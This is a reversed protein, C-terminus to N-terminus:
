TTKRIILETPLVKRVAIKEPQSMRTILTKFAEKGMDKTYVKLTTLAPHLYRAQAIDNFGIIAIDEPILLGAEHIAQIAGMAISDSACFYIRTHDPTKLIQKMLQYGSESNFEGIHYHDPKYYKLSNLYEKLYQERREGYLIQDNIKEHAGIYGIEKYGLTLIYDIVRRVSKKYDIVISDYNMEDPSSDVFVISSTIKKMANIEKKTFKGVAILGDIGQLQEMDYLGDKKYLTMLYAGQDQAEAEIGHRIEMFYPDTVEQKADLWILVGIHNKNQTKKSKTKYNLDRATDIVQKRTEESVSLSVDNNLVRSVTTISVKCRKAIDKLTAM